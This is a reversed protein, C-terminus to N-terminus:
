INDIYTKKARTKAEYSTFLSPDEALKIELDQESKALLNEGEFVALGKLKLIREELLQKILVKIALVEATLETAKKFEAIPDEKGYAKPENLYNDLAVYIEDYTANEKLKLNLIFAVKKIEVEGLKNLTSVVNNIEKKRNFENKVEIDTEYVYFSITTADVKGSQVDELSRAIIPVQTLWYFDIAHYPNGMDFVNDGDKLIYPEALKEEWFPSTPSLSENVRAELDERLSKIRNYELARLEPDRISKIKMSDEDIGTLINGKADTLPYVGIATMPARSLGEKYLSGQLTNISLPKKSLPKIIKINKNM